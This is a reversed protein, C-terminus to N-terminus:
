LPKGIQTELWLLATGAWDLGDDLKMMDDVYTDRGRLRSETFAALLPLALWLSLVLEETVIKVGFSQLYKALWANNHSFAQRDTASFAAIAADKRWSAIRLDQWQPNSSPPSPTATM